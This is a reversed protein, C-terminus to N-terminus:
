TRDRSPEERLKVRFYKFLREPVKRSLMTRPALGSLNHEWPIWRRSKFRYIVFPNVASRQYSCIYALALALEDADKRRREEESLAFFREWGKQYPEDLKQLPAERLQSWLERGEKELRLM